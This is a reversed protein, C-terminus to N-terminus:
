RPLSMCATRGKDGAQDQGLDGNASALQATNRLIKEVETVGHPLAPLYKRCWTSMVNAQKRVEMGSSAPGAVPTHRLDDWFICPVSIRLVGGGSEEETTSAALGFDLAMERKENSTLEAAAASVLGRTVEINVLFAFWFLVNPRASGPLDPDYTESPSLHHKLEDPVLTDFDATAQHLALSANGTASM